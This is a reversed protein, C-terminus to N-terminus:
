CSASVVEFAGEATGGHSNAANTAAVLVTVEGAAADLPVFFSKVYVGKGDTRAIGYQGHNQGDAYSLGYSIDAFREAKVTMTTKETRRVCSPKMSIDIAM